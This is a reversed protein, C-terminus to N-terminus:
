NKPKLNYIFTVQRLSSGVPERLKDVIIFHKKIIKETDSLDFLFWQKKYPFFLKDLFLFLENNGKNRIYKDRLKKVLPLSFIYCNNKKIVISKFLESALNTIIRRNKKFKSFKDIIEKFKKIEDKNYYCVRTVFRGKRSLLFKIKNLLKHILITPVQTTIYDGFIVDYYGQELPM